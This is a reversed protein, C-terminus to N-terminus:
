ASNQEIIPAPGNEYDPIIPNYNPDANITPGNIADTDSFMTKITDMKDFINELQEMSNRIFLIFKVIEKVTKENLEGLNILVESKKITYNEHNKNIIEFIESLVDEPLTKINKEIFQLTKVSGPKYLKEFQEEAKKYTATTEMTIITDEIIMKEFEKKIHPAHKLIVRNIFDLTYKCGKNYIKGFDNELEISSLVM